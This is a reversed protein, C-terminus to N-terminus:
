LRWTTLKKPLFGQLDYIIKSKFRQDALTESYKIFSDHSVALVIADYKLLSDIRSLVNLHIKKRAKSKLSSITEKLEVISAIPDHVTVRPGLQALYDAFELAKSNRLDPCNQKFTAGLILISSDVLNLKRDLMDNILSFGIHEHMKDNTERGALIVKPYFNNKKAVHTLYFPDVGICHGGVLGPKFPIFNWKTSAADIVDNTDIKLTNFLKSLENFFAINLDRQTNEIAKAAEAVKISPAIYTGASIISSYLQDVKKLAIKNSASIVKVIDKITREKDGPNIREPSYGVSFGKNVKLNSEQELLPICIDETVGPYVTSEYIVISHNKDNLAAGVVKSASELFLLDPEKNDQVPTPVCVIFFDSKRLLKVNNTFSIYKSSKFEKRSVEGTQDIGKKLSLIREKNKDYGVVNFLKGFEIALPLGVYGLGIVSIKINKM